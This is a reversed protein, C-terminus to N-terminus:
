RTAKIVYWIGGLGQGNSQGPARDGAFTYVPWGGITLQRAGGKRTIYGVKGPLKIGAPFRVPGIM